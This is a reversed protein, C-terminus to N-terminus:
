TNQSGPDSEAAAAIALLPRFHDQRVRNAKDPVQGMFEHGGEMGGQLLGAFGPQQEMHDVATIRLMQLPLELHLLHQLGDAGCTQGQDLDIVLSIYETERWSYVPCSVPFGSLTQSDACAPSPTLSSSEAM